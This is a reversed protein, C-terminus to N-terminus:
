MGLWYTLKVLFVNDAAAEKLADFDRSFDFNGFPDTANRDHTWVVFLTSGPTYEWRFVLNARLSR